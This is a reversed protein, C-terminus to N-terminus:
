NIIENIDINFRIKTKEINNIIEIQNEFLYNTGIEVYEIIGIEVMRCIHKLTYDTIYNNEIYCINNKIEFEDNYSNKDGILYLKIINIINNDIKKSIDALNIM